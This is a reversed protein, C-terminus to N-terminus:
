NNRTRHRLTQKPQGDEVARHAFVSYRELVPVNSFSQGLIRDIEDLMHKDDARQYIARALQLHHRTDNENLLGSQVLLFSLRASLAPNVTHNNFVMQQVKPSSLRIMQNLRNDALSVENAKIHSIAALCLYNIKLELWIEHNASLKETDALYTYIKGFFVKEQAKLDPKQNEVLWQLLQDRHYLTLNCYIQHEDAHPGPSFIQQLLMKFDFPLRITKAIDLAVRVERLQDQPLGSGELKAMLAAHHDTVEIPYQLFQSLWLYCYFTHKSKEQACRAALASRQSDIAFDLVSYVFQVNQSQAAGGVPLAPVSVPTTPYEPAFSGSFMNPLGYGLAPSAPVMVQAAYGPPLSAQPMTSPVHGFTLSTPTSPLGMAAPGLLMTPAPNTHYSVLIPGVYGSGVVQVFTPTGPTLPQGVTVPSGSMISASPVLANPNRHPRPRRHM